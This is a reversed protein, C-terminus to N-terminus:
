LSAEAVKPALFVVYVYHDCTRTGLGSFLPIGSIMYQLIRKIMRYNGTCSRSTSFFPSPRVDCRRGSARPGQDRQTKLDPSSRTQMISTSLHPCDRELRQIVHGPLPSIPAAKRSSASGIAPKCCAAAVRDQFQGCDEITWAATSCM